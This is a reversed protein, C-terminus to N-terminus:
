KCCEIDGLHKERHLVEDIKGDNFATFADNSIYGTVRRLRLVDKSGCKPCTDEIEGSYGCKRCSDVVPNLAFYPIDKHMAYNVLKELAKPNNYASPQLEVYTICGASSYGTLQSELDIKEFPTINHWVPIHMSNTFFKKDSVNPIVGYKEVFKNLATHCLSEAPTYYVGFNLFMCQNLITYKEAKFEACRKKFLSEIKHALEMGEPETHDKGILIQLAEALGLQGIALTGHKLASVIGEELHYGAMTQNQYMFTASTPPQSAIHTFREILEERCEFIKKDLKNMFSQINKKGLEGKAQMAVTPLIITAPAINGRGDKQIFSYMEAKPLEGNVVIPKIIFQKFYEETFNADGLNVTRCGMTSNIEFPNPEDIVEITKRNKHTLSIIKADNPNKIIWQLLTAYSEEDITELVNRKIERDKRVMAMNTSWNANCYNPYFRKATCILSKKYLDYNPTGPKGNIKEDWQFIGCPFIPTEHLPGTGDLTADLIAHSVIRGETLTCTGYNISSFPLQNGSRSQLSNLNHILGEAGQHTDRVTLDYAYEYCPDDKYKDISTNEIDKPMKFKKLKSLRENVLKTIYEKNELSETELLEAYEARIHKERYKHGDRLHKFFSYRIFPVLTWDLHTASVGGFQQLSQVQIIVAVLQMATSINRPPRLGTQKTYIDKHFIDDFPISLCNHLGASYSSLDHIYIINNNHNNRHTKSMNHLAEDKLLITAAENMRGSFSKEDMNANSNEINIGNLKKQFQKILESNYLREQQRDHHYTIYHWATDKFSSMLEDEVAKCIDNTSIISPEKELFSEEVKNAIRNVMFPKINEKAAEAARNISYEIKYKDFDQIKGNYKKVKM